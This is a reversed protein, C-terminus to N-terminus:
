RSKAFHIRPSSRVVPLMLPKELQCCISLRGKTEIAPSVACARVSKESGVSATGVLPPVHVVVGRPGKVVIENPCGLAPANLEPPEFDVKTIRQLNRLVRSHDAPHRYIRLYGVAVEISVLNGIRSELSDTRSFACQGTRTMQSIPGTPNRLV